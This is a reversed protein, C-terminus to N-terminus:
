RSADDGAGWGVGHEAASVAGRPVGVGARGEQDRPTYYEAPREWQTAGSDPHYFYVAASQEDLYKLWGGAGPELPALGEM